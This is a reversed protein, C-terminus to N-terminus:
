ARVMPPEPILPVADSVQVPVGVPAIHETGAVTRILADVAEVKLAVTVVVARERTHNKGPPGVGQSQASATRPHKTRILVADAVCKGLHRQRKAGTSATASQAQPPPLEVAGGGLLPVEAPAYVM